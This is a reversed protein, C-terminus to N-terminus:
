RKTVPQAPTQDPPAQPSSAQPTSALSRAAIGYMAIVLPKADGRELGALLIKRAEDRQGSMVLVRVVSLRLAVDGPNDELRARRSAIMSAIFAGQDQKQPMAIPAGGADPGRDLQSLVQAVRAALLAQGEPKDALADFADSWGKMAQDKNGAQWDALGLFFRATPSRPDIKLAADFAQRSDAGIKNGNLKALIGGAEAMAEGNQPARRLVAQFARLADQDRGVGMLVQGMLMHPVPDDPNLRAREQLLVLIEEQSLSAPDRSLLEQERKAFPLDALGPSGAVVYFGGATALVGVAIVALVLRNARPGTTLVRDRAKVLRRGIELRGAEAEAGSIRGQAQDRELEDVQDAYVALDARDGEQAEGKAGARLLWYGSIALLALVVLWFLAFELPSAPNTM